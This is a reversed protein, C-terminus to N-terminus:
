VYSRAVIEREAWGWGWEQEMGGLSSRIPEETEGSKNAKKSQKASVGGEGEAMVKRRRKNHGAIRRRCSRKGEDFESLQHFRIRGDSLSFFSPSFVSLLTTTTCRIHLSLIAQMRKDVNLFTVALLSLYSAPIHLLSEHAALSM